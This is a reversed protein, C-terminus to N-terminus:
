GMSARSSARPSADNGSVRVHGLEPKFSVLNAGYDSIQLRDLLTLEALASSRWLIDSLERLAFRNFRRHRSHTRSGRVPAIQCARSHRAVPLLPGKGDMDAGPPLLCVLLQLLLKVDGQDAVAFRRRRAVFWREPFSFPGVSVEPTWSRLDDGADPGVPLLRKLAEGEVPAARRKRARDGIDGPPRVRPHTSQRSGANAM